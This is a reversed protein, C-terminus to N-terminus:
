DLVVWRDLSGSSSSISRGGWCSMNGCGCPLTASTCCSIRSDRPKGSTSPPGFGGGCMTDAAVSWSHTRM